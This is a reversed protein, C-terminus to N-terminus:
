CQVYSQKIFAPVSQQTAACTAAELVRSLLLLDVFISVDMAAHMNLATLVCITTTVPRMTAPRGDIIAM